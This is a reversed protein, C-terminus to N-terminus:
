LRQIYALEFFAPMNAHSDDTGENGLTIGSTASNFPEAGGPFNKNHSKGGSGNGKNTTHTHASQGSGHNHAPLEGVVLVITDSGGTGGADSGAPSGRVFKSRLDPTGQTGDCLGFGSPIDAILGDWESIGGTPIASVSDLDPM